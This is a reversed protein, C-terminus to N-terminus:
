FTVSFVPGIHFREAGYSLQAQLFSNSGNYSATVGVSCPWSIWAISGLSFTLESGASWFAAGTDAVMTYDFHPTIVMRKVFLFNDFIALDGIFVPIAYDATLKVISTNRMSLTSGLSPCNKYGRPMINLARQGFPADSLKAQYTATLKFGQTRTVGPVYGYLYAYGMPAYYPSATLISTAGVEAGIGWRPYVASNATGMMKYARVSGSLYQMISNKGPRSGMFIPTGFAEYGDSAKLSVIPLSTNFFDNSITYSMQPIIGSYWGGKSFSFPIYTKISGQLYPAPLKMSTIGLMTGEPQLYATPNYQVADRDNFDVSM